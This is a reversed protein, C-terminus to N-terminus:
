CTRAYTDWVGNPTTCNMIDNCSGMNTTQVSDRAWALVMHRRGVGCVMVGKVDEEHQKPVSCDSTPVTAQNLGRTWVAPGTSYLNGRNLAPPGGMM